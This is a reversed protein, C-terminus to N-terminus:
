TDKENKIIVIMREKGEKLGYWVIELGDEPRKFNEGFKDGLEEVYKNVESPTPHHCIMIIAEGKLEPKYEIKDFIHVSIKSATKMIFYFEGMDLNFEGSDYTPTNKCLTTDYLANVVEESFTELMKGLKMKINEKKDRELEAQWGMSYGVGGLIKQITAQKSDPVENCPMEVTIESAAFDSIFMLTEYVFIDKKRICMPEINCEFMDAKAINEMIKGIVINNESDVMQTKIKELFPLIKKLENQALIGLIEKIYHKELYTDPHKLIYDSHKLEIADTKITEERGSPCGNAHKALFPFLSSKNYEERMRNSLAEFDM